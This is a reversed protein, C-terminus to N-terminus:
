PTQKRFDKPSMGTIKKFTRSFHFEDKYGTKVAVEKIHLSSFSLLEKALNIRKNLMYEYPTLGFTDHFKKHFYNPAMFQKGAIERLSPNDLYNQDMFDTANKFIEMKLIEKEIQSIDFQDLVASIASLIFIQLKCNLHISDSLLFSSTREEGFEYPKFVSKFTKIDKKIGKIKKLPICHFVSTKSLIFQLTASEPILHLWIIDMDNICEQYEIHWGSIFYLNDPQIDRLKGDVLLSAKGSLPLYLKFCKDQAHFTGTWTDTIRSFGGSLLNFNFNHITM